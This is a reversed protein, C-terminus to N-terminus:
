QSLQLVLPDGKRSINCLTACSKVINAAFQPEIRLHNLCPFKEKLIGLVREVIQRTVKLRRNYRRGDYNNTDNHLLTMLWRKFPYASEGLLIGNPFVNEQEM